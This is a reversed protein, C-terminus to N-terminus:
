GPHRSVDREEEARWAAVMVQGLAIAGDNPPYRAPLHV